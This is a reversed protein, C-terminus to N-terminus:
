SPDVVTVGSTGTLNLTYGASLNESPDQILTVKVTVTLEGEAPVVGTGLDYEFKFFAENTNTPYGPDVSLTADYDTHGENAIVFEFTVSEGNRALSYVEFSASDNNVQGPAAKDATGSTGGTGEKVNASKFYIDADYQTQAATTNVNAEGTITLNEVLAAYGVGLLMVAVLLFSVVVIKRNKM